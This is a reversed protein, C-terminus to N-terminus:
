KLKYLREANDHFIMRSITKAEDESYYGEGVKESLVDSIINRALILESYVNEVAMADGGFAILRSVPVMELWQNLHYRTYTPSVAWAWNM